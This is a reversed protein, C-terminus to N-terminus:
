KATVKLNLEELQNKSIKTPADMVATNGRYTMPFPIVEKLNKENLILMLLRDLGLAIGGHPPTGMKFAELMHGINSKIENSSYGMIKYTAELLEATHARISGGGVEFGNCVLDYQKAIIQDINKGQLLWEKHKDKPSSFPNHTYTWESRTDEQEAKDAGKKPKFFPFNVVWVFKLMGAEKEEETRIDFKDANYKKMADYYDIEDFPPKNFNIRLKSLAYTFLREVLRRIDPEKVFSQELDLQTFEFGRDSRLDEDRMCRAFQFYKEIGATMLLQKYQQPSQPLAYFRGPNVRSPVVFNKAGEMTAKTLMPTEVETFNEKDLANRLYKLLDSRIKINRGMRDRRLDLYRYKLRLEESIEYGDGTIPIALAEAKNLVEIENIDIEITGNMSGVKKQKEQRDKVLGKIQVVSEVTVNVDKDFAVCQIKGTRDRLVIFVIKGIKRVNEAWGDIVVQEGVHKLLENINM